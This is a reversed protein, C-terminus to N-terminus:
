SQQNLWRQAFLEKRRVTGEVQQLQPDEDIEGEGAHGPLLVEMRAGGTPAALAAIRGEHREIVQRVIALGLGSGPTSRAEASRYFREFVKERDSEPIGPGSDDVRLRVMGEGLDHMTVQVTGSAPSWKAANDLLNVVARGLAFEDGQMVWPIIRVQFDVDPRRRRARGLSTEVVEHLEVVETSKESADERALAVLDGILTSLETMQALVDAELEARDQDSINATTGPQNVMMLLEINTRMSTLPTKLEHGADAVFQAQQVRATQLAELMANFSVTLQAVEDNGVVLIPRLDNTQTVYDAARQLRTIPRLGSRAVWLGAVIALVIGLGAIVVLLTGLASVMERLEDLNQALVVLTGDQYQLALVRENGASSIASTAEPSVARFNGGVPIDEGYTPGHEVPTISARTYPNLQTFHVIEHEVFEKSPDTSVAVALAEAERQLERDMNAQLLASVSWYSALTMIVVAIAVAAGTVWSLRWQLPVRSEWENRQSWPDAARPDESENPEGSSAPANDAPKRLM